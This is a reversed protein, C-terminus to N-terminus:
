EKWQPGQLKELQLKLNNCSTQWMINTAKLETNCKQTENFNRYAGEQYKDKALLDNEAQGLTAKLQINETAVRNYSEKWNETTEKLVKKLQMFKYTLTEIEDNEKLETEKFDAVYDKLDELEDKFATIANTGMVVQGALKLREIDRIKTNVLATVYSLVERKM